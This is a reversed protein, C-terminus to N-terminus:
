FRRAFGVRFHVGHDQLTNGGPPEHHLAKAKYIQLDLGAAASWLLGFGVSALSDTPGGRDAGAGADSFVAVQVAGDGPGSDLQPIAFRAVRHRYEISGVLGRDRILTSERYGRVTAAGGIPLQESTPLRRSALQFDARLVLQGAGEALRATAQAQGTGTVFRSDPLSRDEHITSGLADIGFGLALRAAFAREAGRSVWQTATRVATVVTRGDQNGPLMPFPSGLLYTTTRSRTLSLTTEMSRDLAHLWPHSAGIETTDSVSVLDLQDFPAEVVAGLTRAARGYIADGRWHVPVAAALSYEDDGRSKAYSGSLSENRGLTNRAALRLEAATEGVNAPRDNAVVLAAQWRPSERISANLVAEGPKEGPALEANVRDIAGDQLLLQMSEQLKNLNLPTGAGELLRAELYGGPLGQEGRISVSALHGEVVRVVIVGDAVRQDPIVAGSNVYGAAVYRRTVELRLAELEDADVERGEYRAAISALETPPLASAGEFRIAKVHVRTADGLAGGPAVGQASCWGSIAFGALLLAFRRM